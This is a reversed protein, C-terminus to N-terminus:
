DSEEESDDLALHNLNEELPPLGDESDYDSGSENITRSVEFGGSIDCSLVVNLVMYILFEVIHNSAHIM